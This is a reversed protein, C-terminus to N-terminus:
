GAAQDYVYGAVQKRYESYTELALPVAAAVIDYDIRLYEHVIANRMGVSPKIKEVLEGTLAGAQEMLDFSERYNEPARGLVVSGIHTNVDAALDVLRCTLREVAAATVPESRLKDADLPTISQLTTTARDVADLKNRLVEVDLRRPTM